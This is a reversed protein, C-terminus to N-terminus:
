KNSKRYSSRKPFRAMSLRSTTDIITWPKPPCNRHELLFSFPFSVSLFPHRCGWMGEGCSGLSEGESDEWASIEHRAAGGDFENSGQGKGLAWTLNM